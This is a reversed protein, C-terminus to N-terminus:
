CIAVARNSATEKTAEAVVKLAVSRMKRSSEKVHDIVRNLSRRETKEDDDHAACCEDLLSRSEDDGKFLM